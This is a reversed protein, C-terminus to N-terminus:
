LIGISKHAEVIRMVLENLKEIDKEKPLGKVELEYLLDVKLNGIHEKVWKIAMGGWGYSTIISVFKTKPKIANVFYIISAGLPHPGTLVTPFAFVVTAADVLSIAIEGLDSSVLNFPLVRVGKEVLKNYLEDVIIKTSGHMSTYLIVVENKVEPSVWDLYADIIFKPDNWMPGHSPAIIEFDFKEIKNINSKIFNRFPMMIEAYYRKAGELVIESNKAYLESTAYHSGFFDCTFLIKDEHLYTSMTEPWHVWPTFIFTLTKDGLSLKDYDKVVIFKEEPIGLHDILLEKCKENTVVKAEPYLKLVEPISGSHDQEAHQSIIYDIKLDKFEKLNEILADKLVPDVTDILATHESGIILYANYSTGNPLPIIEDFLKRDWHNVGVAYVNEKIKRVSM